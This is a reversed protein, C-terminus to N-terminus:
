KKGQLLAVKGATTGRSVSDSHAGPVGCYLYGYNDGFVYDSVSAIGIWSYKGTFKATKPNFKNCKLATFVTWQAGTYGEAFADYINSGYIAGAGSVPLGASAPISGKFGAITANMASGCGSTLNEDGQIVDPGLASAFNLVEYDCYLGSGTSAFGFTQASAFGCGLVVFLTIVLLSKLKL